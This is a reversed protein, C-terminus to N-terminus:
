GRWLVLECERLSAKVDIIRQNSSGKFILGKDAKSAIFEGDVLVDIVFLIPDTALDDYRYGTYVWISKNPYRKKVQYCIQRVKHINLSDLPEGGLITLGRIHDPELAKLIEDMDKPAFERGANFDWLDLNFCGPCANRCGCVWLSVRVGPGNAIDNKKIEYFHM